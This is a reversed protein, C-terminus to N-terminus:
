RVEASGDVLREVVRMRVSRSRPNEAQEAPSANRPARVRRVLPKRDCRCPLDRPCTCGGSESERMVRKSIRDEGSHYSLVVLRAGPRLWSIASRLAPALVDLESNVEIRLAQFTRKAPHGGRRRAAAPVAATVVEVLQATTEVPRHRVIAHAIRAAFREDANDRLIRALEEVDCTNVLDAATRGVSRDMRMDLPADHRYSFGREPRDFQPSSVGLDFLAGCLVDVGLENLVADLGDFRAHRLRVRAGCTPDEDFRRRAASLASDDRDLGVLSMRPHADLLALAHGGGGVTADLFTGTEVDAFVGLVEDLMVSRHHFPTNESMSTRPLEGSPQHRRSTEGIRVRHWRASHPSHMTGDPSSGLVDTGLERAGDVLLRPRFHVPCEDTIM